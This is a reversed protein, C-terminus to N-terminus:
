MFDTCQLSSQGSNFYVIEFNFEFLRVKEMYSQVVKEAEGESLKKEKEKKDDKKPPM